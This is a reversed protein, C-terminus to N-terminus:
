YKLATGTYVTSHKKQSDVDDSYENWCCADVATHAAYDHCLKDIDPKDANMHLLAITAADSCLSDHISHVLPLFFAATIGRFTFLALQERCLNYKIVSCANSWCMLVSWISRNQSTQEREKAFLAVIRSWLCITCPSCTFLFYSMKCNYRIQLTLETITNHFNTIRSKLSVM